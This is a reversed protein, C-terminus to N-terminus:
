WHNREGSEFLSWTDKILIKLEQQFRAKNFREARSTIHREDLNLDGSEFQEVAAILSEVTQEPYFLGTKGPIVIEPGGGSGYAIVPCGAAHAEAIAIGFDEEAAQVLARAKGMLEVVEGDSRWGLMKVNPAAMKSLRRYEPGDGIVLLPYGLRSFAEVILDIKKHSVLRSVTLYYDERPHRPSFRHTDVPPYIVIAPRRYSRWIGRAVWQSIAVFRDVRDAASRDWLRLYHLFAQALWGKLGSRLGKEQLYQHYSHWAYRLPTFTYSIHLQDPRPVVGHAVAYSFSLIIDFERLDFREVALPMLPLYSRYRTSASPLRHIFSPIINKEAIPTNEFAEKKYVLTYLPANPFIEWAAALVREAGGLVPLADQVIVISPNRNV